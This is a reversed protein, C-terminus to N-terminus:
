RKPELMAAAMLGAAERVAPRGEAREVLWGAFDRWVHHRLTYSTTSQLSPSCAGAGLLERWDSFPADEAAMIWDGLEVLRADSAKTARELGFWFLGLGLFPLEGVEDAPCRPILWQLLAAADRDHQDDLLRLSAILQILTQNSGFHGRADHPYDIEDGLARLLATCAFARRRHAAEFAYPDLEAGPEDWRTLELVETPHWRLPKPMDGALIRGLGAMHKEFGSGYDCGAIERIDGIRLGRGLERLLAEADPAVVLPVESLQSM